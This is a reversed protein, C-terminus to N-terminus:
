PRARDATPDIGAERLAPYVTRARDLGTAEAIARVNHRGNQWMAVVYMRLRSKPVEGAAQEITLAADLDALLDWDGADLPDDHDLTIDPVPTDYGYPALRRVTAALADPLIAAVTDSHGKVGSMLRTWLAAARACSTYVRVIQGVGGPTLITEEDPKVRHREVVEWFTTSDGDPLHAQHRYLSAWVHGERVTIEATDVRVATSIRAKARSDFQRSNAAITIRACLEQGPSITAM